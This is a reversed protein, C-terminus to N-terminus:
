VQEEKGKFQNEEKKFPCKSAYHGVRGCNFCKFPFKGKYKGTGKKLRRVFKSEEEDFSSCSCEKEDISKDAKFVAERTVVKEKPIRMEYATLSGLVQDRNLTEFNKTEEIVSVKHNFKSPLSRLIKQVIVSKNITEGLGLMINVVEDFRLFFKAIDEDEHMKLTQFQPRYMQLKAKVKKGGGRINELKDWIDKTTDCHM